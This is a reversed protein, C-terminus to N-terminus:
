PAPPIPCSPLKAGASISVGLRVPGQAFMKVNPGVNGPGRTAITSFFEGTCNAREAATAGAPTLFLGLSAACTGVVLLSKKLM